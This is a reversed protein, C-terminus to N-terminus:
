KLTPYKKMNQTVQVCCLINTSMINVYKNKLKTTDVLLKYHEFVAINGNAGWFIKNLLLIILKHELILFIFLHFINKRIYGSYM